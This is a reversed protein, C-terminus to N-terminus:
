LRQVKGNLYVVTAKKVDAPLAPYAETLTSRKSKVSTQLDKLPQRLREITRDNDQPSGYELLYDGILLYEVM